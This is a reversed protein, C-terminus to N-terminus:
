HNLEFGEYVCVDCIDETTAPHDGVASDQSM